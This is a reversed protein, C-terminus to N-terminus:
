LKMHSFAMAEDIYTWSPTQGIPGRSSGFKSGASKASTRVAVLKSLILCLYAMPRLQAARLGGNKRPLVPAKRHQGFTGAPSELVWVDDIEGFQGVWVADNSMVPAAPRILRM